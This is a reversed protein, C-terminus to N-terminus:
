QKAGKAKLIDAYEGCRRHQAVLDLVTEGRPGSANIDRGAAVFFDVFEEFNELRMAQYAKLLVHFDGNVGDAAQVNLFDKVRAETWVEDLVKEKDKKLVM